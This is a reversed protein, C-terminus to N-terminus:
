KHEPLASEANIDCSPTLIWRFCACEARPWHCSRHGCWTAIIGKSPRPDVNCLAVPDRWLADRGAKEGQTRVEKREMSVGMTHVFASSMGEFLVVDDLIRRSLALSLESKFRNILEKGLNVETWTTLATPM